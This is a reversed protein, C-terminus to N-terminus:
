RCVPFRSALMRDSFSPPLQWKSLRHQNQQEIISPAPEPLKSQNIASAVNRALNYTARLNSGFFHVNGELTREMLVQGERTSLQSRVRLKTAGSVTTVARRTESGPTYAEITTKLILLDPIGTANLDGSRVVQKFKKTKGLEEILHEYVAVRFAPEIEVNGPDVKDVQVSWQTAASDNTHALMHPVLPTQIISIVIAFTARSGGRYSM